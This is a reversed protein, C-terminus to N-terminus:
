NVIKYEKNRKKLYNVINILIINMLLTFAFNITKSFINLM